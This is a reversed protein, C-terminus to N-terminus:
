REPLGCRAPCTATARDSGARAVDADAPITFLEADSANKAYTDASPGSGECGTFALTLASVAAVAIWHQWRHQYRNM